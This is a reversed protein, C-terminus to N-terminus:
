LSTVAQPARNQISCNLMRIIIEARQLELADTTTFLVHVARDCTAILNQSPRSAEITDLFIAIVVALVVASTGIMLVGLAWTKQLQTLTMTTTGKM